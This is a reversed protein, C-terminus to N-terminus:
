FDFEPLKVKTASSHTKIKGDKLARELFLAHLKVAQIMRHGVDTMGKVQEILERQDFDGLGVFALRENPDSQELVYVTLKILEGENLENVSKVRTTPPRAGARGLAVRVKEPAEQDIWDRLRAVEGDENCSLPQELDSEALEIGEMHELLGKFLTPVREKQRFYACM